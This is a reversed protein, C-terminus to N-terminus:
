DRGAGWSLTLLFASDQIAEVDHPIWRDLAAARGAPLDLVRDPLRLRVHGTLAQISIRAGTRHERIVAGPRLAVLVIRLDPYKVVTAATNGEAAFAAERRLRAIQAPLDLEVVADGLAGFSSRRPEEAHPHDPGPMPLQARSEM